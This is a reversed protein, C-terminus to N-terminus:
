VLAGCVLGLLAPTTLRALVLLITGLEAMVPLFTFVVHHLIIQYGQLGGALIQSVAGTQRDLHFRLPLRMLHAFLRESLTRFMRREASAYIFARVEGVARALLQSLVFLGILILPSVTPDEAKGAFGDVVLKLAIPALATLISATIVLILVTCLRRKVFPGAESWVLQLIEGAHNMCGTRM